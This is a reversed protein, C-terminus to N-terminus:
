RTTSRSEPRPSTSCGGDVAITPDRRLTEATRLYGQLRPWSSFGVARAVVHQAATLAFETVETPSGGPHHRSVLTLAAAHGEDSDDRVARQLRRADRRFRELSPNAPLSPAM